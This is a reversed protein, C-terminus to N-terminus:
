FSREASNVKMGFEKLNESWISVNLQMDSQTRAAIVLVDAYIMELMLVQPVKYVGMITKKVREKCKSAIEDM